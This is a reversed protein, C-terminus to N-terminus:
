SREGGELDLLRSKMAVGQEASFGGLGGDARVVRHCPIVLPIPNGGLAGGVARSARPRGIRAALWRYTKREGYRITMAVRWVERQFATGRPSILGTDWRVPRGAFYDEVQRALRGFAKPAERATRFEALIREEACRRSAIPLWLRCVKEGAGALGCWGWGTRVLRYVLGEEGRRM